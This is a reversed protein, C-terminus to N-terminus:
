YLVPHKKIHQITEESTFNHAYILKANVKEQPFKKRHEIAALILSQHAQEFLSLM